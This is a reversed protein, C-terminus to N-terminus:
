LGIDALSHLQKTIFKTCIRDRHEFLAGRPDLDIIPSFLPEMRRLLMFQCTGVRCANQILSDFLAFQFLVVAVLELLEILRVPSLDDQRTAVYGLEVRQSAPPVLLAAPILAQCAESPGSPM